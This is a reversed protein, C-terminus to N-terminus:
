IIAIDANTLVQKIAEVLEPTINVRLPIKIWLTRGDDSPIRFFLRARGEYRKLILVCRQLNAKYCERLSIVLVPKKKRRWHKRLFYEVLLSRHWLSDFQRWLSVEAQPMNIQERVMETLTHLNQESDRFFIIGRKSRLYLYVMNSEWDVHVYSGELHHGFIPKTAKLRQVFAQWRQNLMDDM